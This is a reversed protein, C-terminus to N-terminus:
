STPAVGFATTRIRFTERKGPVIAVKSRFLVWIVFFPLLATDWLVATGALYLYLIPVLVVAAAGYFHVSSRMSAVALFVEGVHILWGLLVGFLAVGVFGFNLWAEGYGTIRLSFNPADDGAGVAERTIAGVTFEDKFPFIASPLPVLDAVYTKGHLASGNWLNLTWGLDRVEPLVSGAVEAVPRAELENGAKLFSDTLFFVLFIVPAVAILTLFSRKRLVLLCAPAFLLMFFTRERNATLAVTGLAFVFLAVSRWSLRRGLLLAPAALSVVVVLKRLVAFLLPSGGLADLRAVLPNNKLLPMYGLVLLMLFMGLSGVLSVVRVRRHLASDSAPLLRAFWDVTARALPRKSFYLYSIWTALFGCVVISQALSVSDYISSNVGWILGLTVKAAFTNLVLHGAMVLAIFVGFRLRKPFFRSRRYLLLLLLLVIVLDIASRASESPALSEALLLARCAGYIVAGLALLEWCRWPLTGAGTSRRAPQASM